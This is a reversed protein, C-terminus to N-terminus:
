FMFIICILIWEAWFTPLTHILLSIFGGSGKALSKLCIKWPGSFYKEKAIERASHVTLQGSSAAVSAPLSRLEHLCSDAEHCLVGNPHICLQSPKESKQGNWAMLFIVHQDAVAPEALFIPHKISMMTQKQIKGLGDDLLNRKRLFFCM